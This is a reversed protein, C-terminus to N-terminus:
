FLAASPAASAGASLLLLILSIICMSIGIITVISLIILSIIKIAKKELKSADMIGRIGLFTVVAGIVPILILWVLLPMNTLFLLPSMCTLGLLAVTIAAHLLVKKANKDKVAASAAIGGSLGLSFIGVGILIILFIGALVALAGLFVFFFVVGM